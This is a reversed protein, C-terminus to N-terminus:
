LGARCSCCSSAVPRSPSSALTATPALIAGLALPAGLGASWACVVLAARTVTADGLNGGRRRAIRDALNGGVLTGLAGAVVTVLGFTVSARGTEIGYQAHLYKPAWYAFGGMSFTYACYGLVVM